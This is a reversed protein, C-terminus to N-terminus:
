LSVVHFEIKSPLDPIIFRDGQMSIFHFIRIYGVEGCVKIHYSLGTKNQSFYILFVNVSTRFFWNRKSDTELQKKETAQFIKRDM